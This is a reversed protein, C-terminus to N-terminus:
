FTRLYMKDRQPEYLISPSQANTIPQKRDDSFIAGHKNNTYLKNLCTVSCYMSMYKYLYKFGCKLGTFSEVIIKEKYNTRTVTSRTFTM